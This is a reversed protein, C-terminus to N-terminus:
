TAALRSLHGGGSSLPKNDSYTAVTSCVLDHVSQEPRGAADPRVEPGQM